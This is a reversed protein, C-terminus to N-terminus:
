PSRLRTEATVAAPTTTDRAQTAQPTGLLNTTGENLVVRVGVTLVRSARIIDISSWPFLTTKDFRNM